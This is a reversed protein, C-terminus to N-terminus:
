RVPRLKVGVRVGVRKIKYGDCLGVSKLCYPKSHWHLLHSILGLVSLRLGLRLM